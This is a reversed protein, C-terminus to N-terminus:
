PIGQPHRAVMERMTTDDDDDDDGDDDGEDDGAAEIRGVRPSQRPTPKLEDLAAM